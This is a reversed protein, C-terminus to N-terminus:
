VKRWNLRGTFIQQHRLRIQIIKVDIIIENLSDKLFKTVDFIKVREYEVQLSLSSRAMVEGVYNENVYLKTFSDGILQIEAKIPKKM